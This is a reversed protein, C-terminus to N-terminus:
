VITAFGDTSLELTTTAAADSGSIWTADAASSSVANLAMHLPPNPPTEVSVENSWPSYTMQGVGISLYMSSRVCYSYRTGEEVTGDGM